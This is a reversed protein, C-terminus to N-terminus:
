LLRYIAGNTFKTTYWNEEISVNFMKFYLMKMIHNHSCILVDHSMLQSLLINEIFWDVRNCIQVFSEGGPPTKNYIFKEKFFYESFEDSAARKKMGEFIGMNREILEEYFLIQPSDM